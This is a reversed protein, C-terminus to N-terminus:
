HNQNDNLIYVCKTHRKQLANESMVFRLHTKDNKKQQKATADEVFNMLREVVSSITNMQFMNIEFIIHLM